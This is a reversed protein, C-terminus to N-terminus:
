LMGELVSQIELAIVRHGAPTPHVRDGSWLSAPSTEMLTDFVKQLHVCPLGRARALKVVGAAYRELVVRMPDARNAEVLFPTLLGVRIGAELTRDVLRALTAEFEELPVAEESRGEFGRWVDNVGIKVFAWDPRLDLVDAQWRRELDRVTDGSVGRNLLELRLSPHHAFLLAELQSVYGDGLPGHGETRGADTISNGIFLLTQGSRVGAGQPRELPM